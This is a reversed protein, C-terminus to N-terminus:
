SDEVEIYYDGKEILENMISFPSIKSSIPKDTESVSTKYGKGRRRLEILHRNRVLTYALYWMKRTKNNTPKLRCGNYDDNSLLPVNADLKVDQYYNITFKDLIGIFKYNSFVLNYSHTIYFYAKM